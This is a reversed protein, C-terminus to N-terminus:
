EESIPRGYFVEGEGVEVYSFNSSNEEMFILDTGDFRFYNEMFFDMYEEDILTLVDGELEWEGSGVYSSFMGEYCDFTGDKYVTIVFEGGGFGEKEYVYVREAVPSIEKAGCAALCFVLVVVLMAALWKKM